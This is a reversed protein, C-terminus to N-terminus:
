NRLRFSFVLTGTQEDTNAGNLKLSRAKRLTINRINTNTTTTGRPNITAATVAGSGDV